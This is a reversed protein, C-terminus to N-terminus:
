ETGEELKDAPFHGYNESGCKPCKVCVEIAPDEDLYVESIFAHKKAEDATAFEHNCCNLKM